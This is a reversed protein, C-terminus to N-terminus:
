EKPIDSRTPLGKQALIKIAQEVPIAVVGAEKDIWHYTNIEVNEAQRLQKL